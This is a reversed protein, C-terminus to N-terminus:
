LIKLSGPAPVPGAGAADGLESGAILSAAAPKRPPAAAPPSVPLSVALAFHGRCQHRAAAERWQEPTLKKRGEAVVKELGREDEDYQEFGGAGIRRRQDREGARRQDRWKEKQGSEAALKGVAVVLGQDRLADLEELNAGRHEGDGAKGEMGQRQKEDRHQQESRERRQEPRDFVADQGVQKPTALQRGGIRQDFAAREEGNQEAGDNGANGGVAVAIGNM